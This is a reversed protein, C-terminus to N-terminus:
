TIALVAESSASRNSIESDSTPASAVATTVEMGSSTVVTAATRRPASCSATPPMMPPLVKSVSNRVAESM